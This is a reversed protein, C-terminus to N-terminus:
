STVALFVAAVVMGMALGARFGARWQHVHVEMLIKLDDPHLPILFRLSGYTTRLLIRKGTHQFSVDSAEQSGTEYMM